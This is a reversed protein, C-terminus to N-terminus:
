QGEILACSLPPLSVSLEGGEVVRTRTRIENGSISETTQKGLRSDSLAVTQNEKTWNALVIGFRGQPNKWASHFVAPIEHVQGSSEWHVIKIGVANAPRYMRGFVLYNRGKGRRLATTCRLMAVCDDNNGFAPSWPSWWSDTDGRNLLSGDGTLIAGPIEGMVLNYASRIELHYPTPAVGFGGQIIIFEHYLFSYLPFFLTGHDAHGPPAIRQDCVHFNPMFIENPPSEVSFAFRRQGGSSKAQETAIKQFGDLLSQMAANMWKGPAPPHGHDPAFCPFTSCAANQDLFQIWDLGDVTLRRVLNEAFERTKAVGLCGAYSPRWTRDWNEPWAQQDHTRCVTKQGQQEVFFEDGDYGSWFHQTVWRTGNCYSGVHWGRARALESFEHLAEDGGVPPFCDPYVWPGPREWSMVVAVLPADIRQSIKELLPVLKPYPLFEQNPETPGKDVQGQMRVIIHPPSDLLWDPVDTRKHLPAVAWRQQLSWERYIDAADYWDGKFTQVVVDYGLDREGHTPWDGVHAIGLRIGGARNHVPKILKIAGSDDQCGVYIGARDNYYVLFQAYTLGPYHHTDFNEPRFQWAHPSDPELDQPKPAQVLRGTTLPQLVAETGPKGGLHYPAVLFPFQVDTIALDARNRISISWRSLPEDDLMRVTVTAALNLGGLGSFVATLTKGATQVDVNQAETSVIQQFQKDGTLYQIVFVPLLDTAVAFEQDPALTGRFSLLRASKRDFELKHNSNELLISNRAYQAPAPSKSSATGVPGLGRSLKNWM